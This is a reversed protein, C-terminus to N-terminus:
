EDKARLALADRLLYSMGQPLDRDGNGEVVVACFYARNTIRGVQSTGLVADSRTHELPGGSLPIKRPSGPAM